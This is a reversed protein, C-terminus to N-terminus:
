DFVAKGLLSLMSGATIGAIYLFQIYQKLLLTLVFSSVAGALATLCAAVFGYEGWAKIIPIIIAAVCLIGTTTTGWISGV